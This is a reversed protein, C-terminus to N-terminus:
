DLNGACPRCQRGSLLDWDARGLGRGLRADAQGPQPKIMKHLRDVSKPTLSTPGEAAAPGSCVLVGALACIPLWKTGM